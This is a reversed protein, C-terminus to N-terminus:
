RRPHDQLPRPGGRHLGGHAREAEHGRALARALQARGGKEFVELHFELLRALPPAGPVGGPRGPGAVAHPHAGPARAPHRRGAVPAGRSACGEAPPRCREQVAERERAARRGRRDRVGQGRHGPWREPGPVGELRLVLCLQRLRRQRPGLRQLRPQGRQPLLGGRLLAALPRVEGRLLGVHRPEEGPRRDGPDHPGGETQEHDENRCVRWMCGKWKRLGREVQPMCLPKCRCSIRSLAM